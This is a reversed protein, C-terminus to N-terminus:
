EGGENVQHVQCDFVEGLIESIGHTKCSKQITTGEASVGKDRLSDKLINESAWFTKVAQAPEVAKTNLDSVIQEITMQEGDKYIGVVNGAYVSTYKHAPEVATAQELKALKVELADLCSPCILDVTGYNFDLSERINDYGDYVLKNGCSKCCIYDRRAM